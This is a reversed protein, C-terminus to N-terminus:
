QDDSLLGKTEETTTSEEVASSSLSTLETGTDPSKSNTAPTASATENADSSAATKGNTAALYIINKLKYVIINCM